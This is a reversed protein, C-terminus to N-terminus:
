RPPGGAGGRWQVLMKEIQRVAAVVGEVSRRREEATVDVQSLVLETEGLILTLPGRIAHDFDAYLEENTL